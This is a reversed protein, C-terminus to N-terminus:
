FPIIFTGAMSYIGIWPYALYKEIIVYVLNEMKSEDAPESSIKEGHASFDDKLTKTYLIRHKKLDVLSVITDTRHGDLIQGTPYGNEYVEWYGMFVDKQRITIGAGADILSDISPTCSTTLLCILLIILANATYVTSM